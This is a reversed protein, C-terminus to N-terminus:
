CSLVPNGFRAHISRTVCVEVTPKLSGSVEVKVAERILGEMQGGSMGGSV